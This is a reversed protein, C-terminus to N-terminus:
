RRWSVRLAGAQGSKSLGFMRMYPAGKCGVSGGNTVIEQAISVSFPFWGSQGVALGLDYPGSGFTLAGGPQNDDAVRYLHINQSAYVGASTRGLWIDAGTITAGGLTSHPFGGYFWAGENASGFTGQIVDGADDDRWGSRYTGVDVATFTSQGSTAGPTAPTAPPPAGPALAAGVKGLVLGSNRGGRWLIAVVDSVTPTYSALYPLDVSGVGTVSLRVTSPIAGATATVTATAPMPTTIAGLVTIRQGQRLILVPDGPAPDYGPAAVLLGPLLNGSLQVTVSAGAAISDITGTLVQVGGGLRDALEEALVM